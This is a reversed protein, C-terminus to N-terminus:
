AEELEVGPFAEEFSVEKKPLEEYKFIAEDPSVVEIYDREGQL